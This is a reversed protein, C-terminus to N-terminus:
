AAESRGGDLIDRVKRVLEETTFPKQLFAVRQSLIGRRDLEGDTYGSMFLVQTEPRISELHDVLERGSMEPMIVDTVILDIKGAREQCRRLAERGNGAEIVVYGRKVLVKALLSRVAVEDEALLITEVGGRAPGLRTTLRVPVANEAARPFYVKFTTGLGPESYVWIHGGSQKVIGYVTSLGLGTGEGRGKTTFFPEFIRAQTGRDMGIGTDSVALVVYNGPQIIVHSDTYTEDLTVDLASISVTGGKPMADRANVVLNMLVQEVQGRDAEIVGLKSSCLVKLQIDERILRRLMKEIGTVVETLDLATPQLVQKRSFALLQATLQASRDAAKQIELVDERRVDAPDFDELLLQSYGKIATLMNNFDHAIGGALQGVAELKQAQRLQGELGQRESAEHRLMENTAELELAHQLAAKHQKLREEGTAATLERTRALHSLHIGWVLLATLLLGLLLATEDVRSEFAAATESTPRVILSWRAGEPAIELRAGETRVATAGNHEYIISGGTRLEISHEGYVSQNRGRYARDILRELDFTGYLLGVDKGTGISVLAVFAHDGNPLKLTHKAIGAHGSVHARAAEDENWPRPLATLRPFSWVLQSKSDVWGLSQWDAFDEFNLGIEYDRAAASRAEEATWRKSVRKLAALRQDIQALIDSRLTEAAIQTDRERNSYQQDRLAQFVGLSTIIGGAAVLWPIRRTFSVGDEASVGAALFVVGIGVISFVAATHVAMRTLNAWGFASPTGVLYGTLAVLGLGTIIVGIVAAWTAARRRTTVLALLAFGSLVFCVASNPAMRGPASTKYTTYAAMARNVGLKWLIEDFGSPVLGSYELLVLAGFAVTLIAGAIPPIRAGRAAACLTLGVLLFGAATNFQIAVFSPHLKLLAPAQAYWGAIVLSGFAAVVAGIFLSVTLPTLSLAPGVAVGRTADIPGPESRTEPSRAIM